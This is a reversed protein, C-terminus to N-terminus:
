IHDFIIRDVKRNQESTGDDKADTNSKVSEVFEGSENYVNTTFEGIGSIKSLDFVM